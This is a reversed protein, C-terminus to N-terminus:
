DGRRKNFPIAGTVISEDTLRALENLNTSMGFVAYRDRQATLAEPSENLILYHGLIPRGDDGVECVLSGTELDKAGGTRQFTAPRPPGSSFRYRKGDAEPRFPNDKFAGIDIDNLFAAVLRPADDPYLELTVHVDGASIMAGPPPQPFPTMMLEEDLDPEPSIGSSPEPRVRQDIVEPHVILTYRLSQAETGEGYFDLDRM